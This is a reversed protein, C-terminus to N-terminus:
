VRMRELGSVCQLNSIILAALSNVINSGSVKENKKDCGINVVLILLILVLIVKKEM